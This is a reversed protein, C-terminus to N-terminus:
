SHIASAMQRFSPSGELLADYTGQALVRGREIQVIFDCRRVTTLRHAIVLITLGRDLGEIAEMVSRETVNDLASTAEDLVLVSAEKYLARAIGIRQRQGGSLRVGREGVVEDYGLPRSEILEAIHARRAANKVRELDIKDRPVGLAINEALTADALYITQPVHAIARQWARIRSRSLAEGDVAIVGETPRLLGMLLDMTTSKGGGTGGVIGVRAGRPITLDLGDLAWAADPAYRFRVGKLEIGQEMSVPPPAPRLLEEDLPQDLLEITDALVSESGVISAWSSFCAQLAPLLRQAGLALAALAPLAESIGGPRTSLGYAIGAILVMGVAEIMPKPSQAIFINTGQARRLLRDSRQYIATYVHQSSDLLVDRIGGLGEQLAKVVHTQEVAIHRGNRRLQGDTIWSVIAYCSGFGVASVLAVMPDIILLTAIIAVILLAQSVFVTVPLLVGLMTGGIKAAIGSIVESSSRRIHVEYPQHLTRRYVEISLDAGTAFTFRTSAWIFLLRVGGAVLSVAAFVLTLPLLLEQANDAGIFAAFRAVVGYEMVKDPAALAGIFPVIASLSVIEAVVTALVLVLLLLFQGRRRAGLHGWLSKLSARINPRSNV